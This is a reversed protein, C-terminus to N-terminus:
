QHPFTDAQGDVIRIRKSHSNIADLISELRATAEELTSASAVTFPLGDKDAALFAEIVYGHNSSHEKIRLLDIHDTNIAGGYRTPTYIFM